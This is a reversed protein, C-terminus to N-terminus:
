PLRFVYGTSTEIVINTDEYYSADNNSKMYNYYGEYQLIRDPLVEVGNLHEWYMDVMITSIEEVDYVNYTNFQGVLSNSWSLKWNRRIWCGLLARDKDIYRQNNTRISSKDNDSLMQDLMSFAESISGPINNNVKDAVDNGVVGANGCGTNGCSLLMCGVAAGFIRKTIRVLHIM